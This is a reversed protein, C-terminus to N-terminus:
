RKGENMLAETQAMLLPVPAVKAERADLEISHRLIADFISVNGKGDRVAVVLSDRRRGTWWAQAQAIGEVAQVVLDTRERDSTPVGEHRRFNM